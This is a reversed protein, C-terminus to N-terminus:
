FVRAGYLGRSCGTDGQSGEGLPPPILHMWDFRLLSQWLTKRTDRYNCGADRRMGEASVACSKFGGLWPFSRVSPRVRSHAPQFPALGGKKDIPCIWFVGRHVESVESSGVLDGHVAGPLRASLSPHRARYRPWRLFVFCQYDPLYSELGPMSIGSRRIGVSPPPSRAPFWISRAVPLTKKENAARM